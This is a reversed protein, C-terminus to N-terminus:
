HTEIRFDLGGLGFSTQKGLHVTRAFEFFQSFALINGEYEVTGTLGGFKMAAEQRSSYRGWDHWTLRSDTMRITSAAEHLASFDEASLRGSLGDLARLSRLRRLILSLLATFDLGKSLRNAAKFRLPTLFRLKILAVGNSKVLQPMPLEMPTCAGLREDAPSFVSTGNHIIDEIVFQGPAKRSGLGKEGAMMFAHVFFPLYETAHSFLKLNFCFLENAEYDRRSGAPPEICFPPPLLPPQTDGGYVKAATFIRPFICGRALMCAECDQKHTMCLGRKLCAGMAGRLMSGKYSPFLGPTKMRCIFKVEIYRM